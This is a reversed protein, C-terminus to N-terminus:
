IEMNEDQYVININTINTSHRKQISSKSQTDSAQTNVDENISCASLLLLISGIVVLKNMSIVMIALVNFTQYAM